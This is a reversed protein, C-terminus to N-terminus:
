FIQERASNARKTCCFLRPPLLPQKPGCSPRALTLLQLPYLRSFRLLAFRAPALEGRAVRGSYLRFFIFGSLCFFLDVALWGHRYFVALLGALPARAPDYTEASGAFFHQWHWFVVGVAAVGRLADLGHFREIPDRGTM